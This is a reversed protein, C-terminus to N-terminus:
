VRRINAILILQATEQRIRTEEVIMIKDIFLKNLRQETSHLM